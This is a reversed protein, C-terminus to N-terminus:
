RVLAEARAVPLRLARRPNTHFMDRVGDEGLGLGLVNAYQRPYFGTGAAVIGDSRYWLHNGERHHLAEGALVPIETDDTIGIIRGTGLFEATRRCIALDVHDGDFNLFPLLKEDQAARVLAAPVPGLLEPLTEYHWERALFAAREGDRAAREAPTRWVHRFARPMDNFLHDTLLVDPSPGYRHHVYDILERTREASLEPHTHRFHGLAIRVGNAYCLDVIDRYRVGGELVDDLDGGDPGMVIYRLGHPGLECIREWEEASPSWIGRPPVGGSRGLLPGEVSFGLVSPFRERDASWARVVESFRDIYSRELFVSPVLHVGRRVAHQEVDALASPVMSSFDIGGIGHTHVLLPVTM